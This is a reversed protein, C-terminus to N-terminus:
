RSPPRLFEDIRLDEATMWAIRAHHPALVDSHDNIGM